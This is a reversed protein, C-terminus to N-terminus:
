AGFLLMGLIIIAIILWILSGVLLINATSNLKKLFEEKDIKKDM